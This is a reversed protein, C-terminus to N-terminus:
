HCLKVSTAGVLSCLNYSGNTLTALKMVSDRGSFLSGTRQNVSKDREGTRASVFIACIFGSTTATNFKGASSHSPLLAGHRRIRTGMSTFFAANSTGARRWSRPYWVLREHIVRGVSRIQGRRLVLSSKRTYQPGSRHGSSLFTQCACQSDVKYKMSQLFRSLKYTNDSCNSHKWRGPYSPISSHEGYLLLKQPHAGHQRGCPKRVSMVVRVAWCFTIPCDLHRFRVILGTESTKSVNTNHFEMLWTRPSTIRPRAVRAQSAHCSFSKRSGSCMRGSLVAWM